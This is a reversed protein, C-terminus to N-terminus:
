EHGSRRAAGRGADRLKVALPRVRAGEKIYRSRRDNNSQLRSKYRDASYIAHSWRKTARSSTQRRGDDQILEGMLHPRLDTQEQQRWTSRARIPRPMPSSSPSPKPEAIRSKGGHCLPYLGIMAVPAIDRIFNFNLKEYLTANIGCRSSVALLSRTATPPRRGLSSKLASMAALARGTRSSSQSVSGNRCGNVSSGRSSHRPAVGAPFGVIIRVPRTPYTQAWASHPIAPLAAGGAALHLFQRRPLNM